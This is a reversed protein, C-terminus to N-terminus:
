GKTQTSEMSLYIAHISGSDADSGWFEVWVYCGSLDIGAELAPRLSGDATEVMTEETIAVYLKTGVEWRDAGFLETVTGCFGDGTMEEVYILVRLSGEPLPDETAATSPVPAPSVPLLPQICWLGFLVLCVCAARLWPAFSRRSISSHEAEDIFRADIHGMAAFLDKGNM